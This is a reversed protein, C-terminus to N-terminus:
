LLACTDAPARQRGPSSEDQRRSARHTVAAALDARLRLVVVQHTAAGVAVATGGAGGAHGEEVALLM